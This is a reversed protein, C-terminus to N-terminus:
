VAAQQRLDMAAPTSRHPSPLFFLKEAKVGAASLFTSQSEPRFATDTTSLPIDDTLVEIRWEGVYYQNDLSSWLGKLHTEADLRAFALRNGLSSGTTLFRVPYTYEPM